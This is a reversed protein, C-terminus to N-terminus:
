RCDSGLLARTLRINRALDFGDRPMEIDSLVVSAYIRTGAALGDAAPM